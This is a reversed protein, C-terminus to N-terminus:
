AGIIARTLAGRKRVPAAPASAFVPEAIEKGDATVEFVEVLVHTEGPKCREVRPERIVGAANDDALVGLRVLSDVPMKGGLVDISVDDVLKTSFRTVRVWRQRQALHLEAKPFAPLLALLAADLEARIKKKAWGKKYAYENLTLAQERPVRWSLVLAGKELTPRMETVIIAIKNGLEGARVIEELTVPRSLPQHASVLRHLDRLDAKTLAIV